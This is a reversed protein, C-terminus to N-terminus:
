STSTETTVTKSTTNRHALLDVYRKRVVNIVKVLSNWETNDPYATAMSTVYNTFTTALTTLTTKLEKSSVFEQTSLDARKDASAARFVDNSSKVAAIEGSIDLAAVATAYPEKTLDILFNDTASTQAQYNLRSADRHVDWLIALTAAANQESAAESLEFYSLKRGFRTLALDRLQDKELLLETFPNKQPNRVAYEYREAATTLSNLYTELPVDSTLLSANTNTVDAVTDRVYQVLELNRLRSPALSILKEM